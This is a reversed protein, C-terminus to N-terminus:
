EVSRCEPTDKKQADFKKHFSTRICDLLQESVERVESEDRVPQARRYIHEQACHEVIAGNVGECTLPDIGYCRLWDRKGSCMKEVVKRNYTALITEDLAFSLQPVLCVTIMFIKLLDRM